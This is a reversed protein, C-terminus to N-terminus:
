KTWDSRQGPVVRDLWEKTWPSRQRPVAKDLSLKTWLCNQGPVTKELSPKTWPFSEGPVAKDLSQKTYPNSKDLSQKKWGHITKKHIQATCPQETWPNRQRPSLLFLLIHIHLVRENARYLDLYIKKKEKEDLAEKPAALFTSAVNIEVKM